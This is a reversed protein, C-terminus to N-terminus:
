VCLCHRVAGASGTIFLNEGALARQVAELQCPTLEIRQKRPAPPAAAPAPRTPSTAAAAPQADADLCVHTFTPLQAGAHPPAQPTQQSGPLVTPGFLSRQAASTPQLLIQSAQTPAGGHWGQAFSSNTPSYQTAAAGATGVERSYPKKASTSGAAVTGGTDAPSDQSTLSDLARKLPSLSPGAGTPQQQHSSQM